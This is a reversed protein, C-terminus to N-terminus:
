QNPAPDRDVNNYQTGSYFWPLIWGFMALFLDTIDPYRDPISQQMWELIFVLISLILGGLIAVCFKQSPYALLALYALAMFPWIDSVIDALGNINSMQGLFPMWNFIHTQTYFDSKQYLENIIFGIIFSATASVILFPRKFHRMFSILSLGGIVGLVAELSIQRSVVPIKLLIVVIVFLPFIKMVSHNPRILTTILLGLGVINLAYIAMEYINLLDPNNLTHWLPKLGYRLNGIDFSPVLPSLQSLAWLGLIILGLNSLYGQLFMNDRLILLKRGISTRSGIIVSFVAGAFTGSVNLLIDLISTVRNPLFAQLFELTFSFAVGTITTILIITIPCLYESLLRVAFFGLPVYVIFNTLMDNRSIYQPWRLILSDISDDTWRWGSFPYLTGYILLLTFLVLSIARSRNVRHTNTEMQITWCYFM